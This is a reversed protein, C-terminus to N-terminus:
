GRATKLNHAASTLATHFHGAASAAHPPPRNTVDSVAQRVSPPRRDSMTLSSLCSFPLGRQLLTLHASASSLPLPASSATTLLYYYFVFLFRTGSLPMWGKSCVRHPPFDTAQRISPGVHFALWLM